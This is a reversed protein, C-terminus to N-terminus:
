PIQPAGTQLYCQATPLPPSACLRRFGFLEAEQWGGAGARVGGWEATRRQWATCKDLHFM